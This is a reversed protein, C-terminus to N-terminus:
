SLPYFFFSYEDRSIQRLIASFLRGNLFIYPFTGSLPKNEWLWSFGDVGQCGRCPSCHLVESKGEKESASRGFVFYGDDGCFGDRCVKIRFVVGDNRNVDGAGACKKGSANGCRNKLEVKRGHEAVGGQLLDCCGEVGHGVVGTLGWEVAVEGCQADLAGKKGEVSCATFVAGDLSVEFGAANGEGATAYGGGGDGHVFGEGFEANGCGANGNGRPEGYLAFLVAVVGVAGAPGDLGCEVPGDEDFGGPEAGRDADGFDM